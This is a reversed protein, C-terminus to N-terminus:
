HADRVRQPTLGCSRAWSRIFALMDEPNAKALAQGPFTPLPPPQTSPQHNAALM